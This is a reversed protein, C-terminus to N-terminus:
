SFKGELIDAATSVCDPCPVRGERKLRSCHRYGLKKEFAEAVSEADEGALRMACHLAGCLGDPANGSGCASMEALLDGRDFAHAIAQACNLKLPPRRFSELAKGKRM